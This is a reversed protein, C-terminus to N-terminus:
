WFLQTVSWNIHINGKFSYKPTGTTAYHSPHGRHLVLSVLEMGAQCLANFSGTSGCSSYPNYTSSLDSGQGTFDMVGYAAPLCFFIIIRAWEEM